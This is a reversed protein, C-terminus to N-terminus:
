QLYNNYNPTPKPASHRIPAYIENIKRYILHNNVEHPPPPPLPNVQPCQDFADSWPKLLEEQTAKRMASSYCFLYCDSTKNFPQKCRDFCKPDLSEIETDYKEYMCSANIARAIEVMRYTCGSGDGVYHGGRCEGGVPHSFWYADKVNSRRM